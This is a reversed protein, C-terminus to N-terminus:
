EAEIKFIEAMLKPANLGFAMRASLVPSVMRHAVRSGHVPQVRHGGDQVQQENSDDEPASQAAPRQSSRDIEFCQDLDAGVRVNPPWLKMATSSGRM